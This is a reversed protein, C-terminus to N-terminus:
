EGLMTKVWNKLSYKNVIEESIKNYDTDFFEQPVVPNKRDIVHINGYQYFDYKKVFENTTILKTNAGLSELTRMTLGAQTGFQVDLAVKSAKSNEAMKSFPMGNVHIYKLNMWQNGGPLIAQVFHNIKAGMLYLYCEKVNLHNDKVIKDWIELRESHLLGSLNLVYKKEEGHYEHADTFFLPLHKVGHSEGYKEVDRLDFSYIEDYCERNEHYGEVREIDDWLYLVFKADRQKERFEKLVVPDLQRGVIVFVYDYKETTNLLAEKQRILCKKKLYEGKTFANYLKQVPGYNGIPTFRTVHYGLNQIEQEIKNDYDYFGIPIFLVKKM